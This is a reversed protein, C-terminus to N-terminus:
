CLARWKVEASIGSEGKKLMNGHLVTYYNKGSLGTIVKEPAWSVLLDYTSWYNDFQM